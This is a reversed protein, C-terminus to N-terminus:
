PWAGEVRRKLAAAEREIYDRSLRGVVLGIPVALAGSFAVRLSVRTGGGSAPQLSHDALARLGPSRSEWSFHSRPSLDVVSWVATRLKPQAIEYRAGIALPPADLPRVSTVTPLWLPWHTPDALVSWVREAPADVLITTEYSPM